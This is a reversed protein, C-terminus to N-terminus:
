GGGEGGVREGNKNSRIQCHHNIKATKLSSVSAASGAFDLIKYTNTQAQM